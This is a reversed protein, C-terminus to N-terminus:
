RLRASRVVSLDLRQEKWLSVCRGSETCKLVGTEDREPAWQEKYVYLLGAKGLLNPLDIFCSNESVLSCINCTHSGIPLDLIGAGKQMSGNHLPQLANSQFHVM